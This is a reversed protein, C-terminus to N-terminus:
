LDQLTWNLYRREAEKSEEATMASQADRLRQSIMEVTIYTAKGGWWQYFLNEGKSKDLANRALCYATLSDKTVGTGQLYHDALLYQAILADSEQNFYGPRGAAGMTQGSAWGGSKEQKAAKRYWEVAQGSDKPVGNGFECFVGMRLQAWPEGAEASPRLIALARDYDEMQWYNDVSREGPNPNLGACGTVIIAAITVWGLKNM